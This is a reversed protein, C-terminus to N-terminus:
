KTSVRAKLEEVWNQVRVIGIAADAKLMLFREGDLTVDYWADGNPNTATVFSGEFLPAPTAPELGQGAPAISAAMMKDANRFVIERGNKTWKPETGGDRSVQYRSGAGSLPQVYVEFRGTDDAAFALWRGDPSISPSRNRFSSRVLPEMSRKGNRWIWIADSAVGILADAHPTWGSVHLHGDVSAILQEDSGDLRRSFVNRAIRTKEVRDVAYTIRTGDPTWAPTEAEAPESTVRSLTGRAVDYVWIDRRAANIGGTISLAVRRGDPSIRPFEYGQHAAPVPQVAGRRDVWVLSRTGLAESLPVYVISGTTSTAFQAFGLNANTYVDALVQAPTATITFTSLDFPAALIARTRGFVLHGSPLYHPAIGGHAVVRREGTDLRLVAIATDDDNATGGITFVIAKGGPLADPTRYTVETKGDPKALLTPTGGAAPVRWLSSSPLGQAFVITDDPLWTGTGGDVLDCIKQPVGGGIPVRALVHNNSVFLALWQGDPSFFPKIGHEVGPIPTAELQDLAQAFVQEKGAADLGIFVVRSGDPSFALNPYSNPNQLSAGGPLGVRSRVVPTVHAPARRLALGVVVGAAVLGSAAAAVAVWRMVSDRRTPAAVVFDTADELELRADGLDRLRERSKKALCRRLLRQTPGPVHRALLTWEPEGRLVAALTESVNEGDFARKGALMEFLVCGFAWVDSRKDASRGKAQEPSMYAATGLIVGIGTMMAPSTITPSNMPDLSGSNAAETAKALGFDLVKVTGDRTLAINAPKLDRHIIGKEHAAELAEAIQKAIGLAEDVPIPGRAIRRDLSEGDVLELVLFQQGNVEDLGYIAGIHPHNLSALVQAERQFRALREPDHTFTDPLIKLAVERGLKTDKARYVEGMGGAGLQAVVDYSGLRSNPALAM